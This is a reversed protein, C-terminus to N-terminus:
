LQRYCWPSILLPKWKSINFVDGTLYRHLALTYQAASSSQAHLGTEEALLCGSSYVPYIERTPCLFSSGMSETIGDSKIIACSERQLIKQIIRSPPSLSRLHVNVLFHFPYSVQICLVCCQCISLRTGPNLLRGGSGALLDVHVKRLVLAPACGSRAGLSFCLEPLSSHLVQWMRKTPIRRRHQTYQRQAAWVARRFGHQVSTKMEKLM